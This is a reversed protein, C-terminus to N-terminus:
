TRIFLVNHNNAKQAFEYWRKSNIPGSIEAMFLIAEKFNTNISIAKLCYQHALSLNNLEKYCRAIYLYADIREAVFNSNDAYERFWKIATEYDQRYWYERALYYKERSLSPNSEIQKKLIRFARDPDKAHAPSYGYKIKINSVCDDRISTYNHIAGLWYFEPINKFLRPFTFTSGGVMVIDVTRKGYKDADKIARRILEIGNPQLTEDADISLIWRGTAKSKAHNRAKAFDDCWIFDTYIKDTYKKAIDITKDTSGTDCIIIEDAEKVTELCKELVEEENKVILVISLDPQM